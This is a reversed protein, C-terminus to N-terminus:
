RRLAKLLNDVSMNKDHAIEKLEEYCRQAECEDCNIDSVVICSNEVEVTGISIKQAVDELFKRIDIDSLAARTERPIRVTLIVTKDTM